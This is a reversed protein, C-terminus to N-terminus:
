LADDVASSKRTSRLSKKPPMNDAEIKLLKESKTLKGDKVEYGEAMLRIHIRKLTVAFRSFIDITKPTVNANEDAGKQKKM